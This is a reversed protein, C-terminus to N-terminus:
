IASARAPIPPPIRAGFRRGIWFGLRCALMKGSWSYLLGYWPGFAAVVATILVIQPAGLTALATYGLIGVLAGLPQGAGRGLFPGLGGVM